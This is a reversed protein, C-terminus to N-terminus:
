LETAEGPMDKDRGFDLEVDALPTM